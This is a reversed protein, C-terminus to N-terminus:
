ATPSATNLGLMEALKKAIVKHISDIGQLGDIRLFSEDAAGDFGERVKELFRLSREEVSSM